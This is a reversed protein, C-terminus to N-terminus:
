LIVLCKFLLGSLSLPHNVAPLTMVRCPIDSHSALPQPLLSWLCLRPSLSLTHHGCYLRVPAYSLTKRQAHFNGLAKAQANTWNNAQYRKIIRAKQLLSILPALSMESSPRPLYALSALSVRPYLQRRRGLAPLVLM